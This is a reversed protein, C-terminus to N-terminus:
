KKKAPSPSPAPAPAKNKNSCADRIAADAQRKLDRDVAGVVGGELSPSDSSVAKLQFAGVEKGDALSYITVDGSGRGPIM